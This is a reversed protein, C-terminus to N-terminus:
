RDLRVWGARAMLAGALVTIVFIGFAALNLLLTRQETGAAVLALFGLCGDIQFALKKM